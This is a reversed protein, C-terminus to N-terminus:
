GADNDTVILTGVMGGERHGPVNCYYTFQGATPPTFSFNVTAGPGVKQEPVLGDILFTHELVGTNIYTVNITQGVKAEITTIDYKIDEGKLTINLPEPAAPTAPGGCAAMVLSLAALAAAFVYFRKTFV